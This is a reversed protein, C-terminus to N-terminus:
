DWARNHLLLAGLLSQEAQLSHPPVKQRDSGFEVTNASQVPEPM